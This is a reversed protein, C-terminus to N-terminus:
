WDDATEVADLTQGDALAVAVVGFIAQLARAHRATGHEPFHHRRKLRAGRRPANEVLGAAVAAAHRDKAAVIGVLAALMGPLHAHADGVDDIMRGIMAHLQM